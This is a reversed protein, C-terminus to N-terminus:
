APWWVSGDDHGLDADHGKPRRCYRTQTGLRARCERSEEILEANAYGRARGSVSGFNLTWLQGDNLEINAYWRCDDLAEFHVSKVDTAVFDDLTEDDPPEDWGIRPNEGQAGRQAGPGERHDHVAQEASETSAPTGSHHGSNM